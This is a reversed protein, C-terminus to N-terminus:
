YSINWPFVDALFGSAVVAATVSPTLSSSIVLASTSSPSLSRAGGDLAGEDRMGGLTDRNCAADGADLDEDEDVGRDMEDAVEDCAARPAGDVEEDVEDSNEKERGESEDRTSRCGRNTVHSFTDLRPWFDKRPQM